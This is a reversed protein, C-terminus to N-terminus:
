AIILVPHFEMSEGPLASTPKCVNEYTSTSSEASKFTLTSDFDFLNLIVASSQAAAAGAFLVAINASHM